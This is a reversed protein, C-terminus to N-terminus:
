ARELYGRNAGPPFAIEDLRILGLRLAVAVAQTRDNARLKRLISQMRTKVTEEGIGLARGIARNTNGNAALVLAQRRPHHPLHPARRHPRTPLRTHPIRPAQQKLCDPGATRSRDRQVAWARSSGRVGGTTTRCRIPPLSSSGSRRTSSRATATTSPATPDEHQARWEALDAASLHQPPTEGRYWDAIIGLEAMQQHTLDSVEHETAATVDYVEAQPVHEFAEDCARLLAVFKAQWEDPMSQLLTRPLVLYNAYSLSFYTHIDVDERPRRQQAEWEECNAKAEEALREGDDM